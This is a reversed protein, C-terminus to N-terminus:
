LAGVADYRWAHEFEDEEGEGFDEAEKASFGSKPTLM